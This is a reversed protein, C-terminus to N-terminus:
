GVAEFHYFFHKVMFSLYKSSKSFHLVGGRTQNFVKMGAETKENQTIQVMLKLAVVSMGQMVTFM